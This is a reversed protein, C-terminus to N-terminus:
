EKWRANRIDELRFKARARCEKDPDNDAVIYVCNVSKCRLLRWM